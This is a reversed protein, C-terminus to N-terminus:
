DQLGAEYHEPVDSIKEGLDLLIPNFGTGPVLTLDDLQYREFAAYGPSDEVKCDTFSLRPQNSGYVRPYVVCSPDTAELVAVTRETAYFLAKTDGSYKRYVGNRPLAENGTRILLRKINDSADVTVVIRNEGGYSKIRKLANYFIVTADSTDKPMFSKVVVEVTDPPNISFDIDLVVVKLVYVDPKGEALRFFEGEYSELAPPPPPVTTTDQATACSFAFTLIALMVCFANLKNKM